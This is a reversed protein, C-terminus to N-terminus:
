RNRVDLADLSNALLAALEDESLADTDAVTPAPAFSGTPTPRAKPKPAVLQGLYASLARDIATGRWAFGVLYVPLKAPM